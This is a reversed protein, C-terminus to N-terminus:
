QRKTFWGVYRADSMLWGLAVEPIESDKELWLFRAIGAQSAIVHPIKVEVPLSVGRQKFKPKVYEITPEPAPDNLPMDNAIEEAATEAGEGVNTDAM